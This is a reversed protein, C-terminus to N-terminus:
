EETGTERRIKLKPVAIDAIEEAPASRQEVPLDAYLALDIEGDHFGELNPKPFRIKIFEPSDAMVAARHLIVAYLRPDDNEFTNAIDEFGPLMAQQENAYSCKYDSKRLSADSSVVTSQTIRFRGCEAVVHHWFSGCKETSVSIRNSDAARRVATEVHARRTVPMLNYLEKKGVDQGSGAARASSYATRIGRYLDSLFPSPVDAKFFEVLDM